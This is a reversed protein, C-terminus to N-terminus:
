IEFGGQSDSSPMNEDYNTVRGLYSQDLNDSLVLYGGPLVQIAKTHIYLM